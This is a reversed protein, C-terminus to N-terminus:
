TSDGPQVTFVGWCNSQLFGWDMEQRQAWTIGLFGDATYGTLLM